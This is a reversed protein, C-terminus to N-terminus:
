DHQNKHNNNNNTTTTTNIPPPPNTFPKTPDIKPNPQNTKKRNTTSPPPRYYSSDNFYMFPSVSFFSPKKKRGKKQRNTPLRTHKPRGHASRQWRCRSVDSLQILYIVLLLPEAGTGGEKENTRQKKKAKEIRLGFFFLSLSFDSAPAQGKAHPPPHHSTSRHHRKHRKNKMQIPPTRKSQAPRNSSQVFPVSAIPRPLPPAPDPTPPTPFCRFRLALSSLFPPFSFSLSVSLSLSLSLSFM